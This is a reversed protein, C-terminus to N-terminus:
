RKLNFICTSSEDSSSVALSVVSGVGSSRANKNMLVMFALNGNDSLNRVSNKPPIRSPISICVLEAWTVPKFRM